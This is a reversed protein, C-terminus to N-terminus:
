VVSKRDGVSFATRGQFAINGDLVSRRRVRQLWRGADYARVRQRQHTKTQSRRIVRANKGGDFGNVRQQLNLQRLTRRPMAIVVVTIALVVVARGEVARPHAAGPRQKGALASM